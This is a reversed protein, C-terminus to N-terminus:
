RVPHWLKPEDFVDRGFESKGDDRFGPRYVFTGPFLSWASPTNTYFRGRREPPSYAGSGGVDELKLDSTVCAVPWTVEFHGGWGARYRRDIVALCQNSLRCFPGFGKIRHEDSIETEPSVLSKWWHWGPNEAFKQVTTMLLDARSTSLEGFLRGWLGSFRVDDEILWYRDFSPNRLYYALLPLDHHGIPNNWDVASNKGDYPLSRLDEAGFLHVDASNDRWIYDPQYAVVVVRFDPMERRLRDVEGSVLPTIHRARYVVVDRMLRERRSREMASSRTKAIEYRSHRVSVIM